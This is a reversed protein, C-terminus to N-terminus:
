KNLAAVVQKFVEQRKHDDSFSGDGEALGWNIVSALAKEMRENSDRLMKTGERIGKIISSNAERLRDREAENEALEKAMRNAQENATKIFDRLIHPYKVYYDTWFDLDKEDTM